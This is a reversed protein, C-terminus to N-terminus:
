DTTPETNKKAKRADIKALVADTMNHVPTDLFSTVVLCGGGTILDSLMERDELSPAVSYLAKEILKKSVGAVVTDAVFHAIKQKNLHM